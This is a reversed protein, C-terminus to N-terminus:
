IRVLACVNLGFKNKQVKIRSPLFGAKRIEIWLDRKSYYRKHDEMEERPALNFRFAALELFFKGRWSPVNIYLIGEESMINKIQALLDVPKDIHELLNNMVLFDIKGTFTSITENVDGEYCVIKKDLLNLRESNLSMDFLHIQSFLSWYPQTVNGNFGSGIDGLSERRTTSKLAKSISRGSLYQGLMDLTSLNKNEGYSGTRKM